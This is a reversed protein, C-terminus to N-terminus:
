HAEDLDELPKDNPPKMEILAKIIIYIVRLIRWFDKGFM